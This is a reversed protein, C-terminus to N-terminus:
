GRSIVKLEGMVVAWNKQTADLGPDLSMGWGQAGQITAWLAKVAHDNDIVRAWTKLLGRVIEKTNPDALIVGPHADLYLVLSFLPPLIPTLLTNLLPPSPDTHTLIATLLGLSSDATFPKPSPEAPVFDTEPSLVSRIFPGHLIPLLIPRTVSPQSRLMRSLAFAAGRRYSEPATQSPASAPPHLSQNPTQPSLISLLRPIIASFYEQTGM